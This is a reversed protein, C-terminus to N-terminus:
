VKKLTENLQSLWKKMGGTGKSIAMFSGVNIVKMDICNCLTFSTEGEKEGPKIYAARNLFVGRVPNSQEPYDKHEVSIVHILYHDKKEKYNSWVKKQVVYDRNSFVFGMKLLLYFVYIDPNGKTESLLKGESYLTDFTKRIDLDNLCKIVKDVPAKITAELCFSLKEESSKTLPNQMQIYSYTLKYEDTQEHLQWSSKDLTLFDLALKEDPDQTEISKLDEM